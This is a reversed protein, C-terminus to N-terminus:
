AVPGRLPGWQAALTQGRPVLGSIEPPTLPQFERAAKLGMRLEDLNRMGVIAVALGPTSWAYPLASGYDEPSMLRAGGKVPGGLVKMGIVAIGRRRCEPLVKEEFNYIHREVFNVTCMFLEIADTELVPIARAPRMHCTAGIHRIVGREKWKLLAGLTGTKRDLMQDLSPYRDTRGVNHIHVADFYDTRLKRLSDKIQYDVDGGANTEIKTVLFVKDRRGQLAHGLREESRNYPPATDVYNLGQEIAEAMFRDVLAQEVDDDGLHQAGLGLISAKFNINGLRRQPLTGGQTSATLAAASVATFARRTIM